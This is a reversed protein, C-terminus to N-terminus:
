SIVGALYRTIGEEIVPPGAIVGGGIVVSHEEYNKRVFRGPIVKMSVASSFMKKEFGPNILRDNHM